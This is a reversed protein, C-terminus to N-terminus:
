AGGGAPVIAFGDPGLALREDAAVQLVNVSLGNGLAVTEVRGPDRNFENLADDFLVVRYRGDAGPTLGLAHLDIAVRNRQTPTGEGQEWRPVVGFPVVKFQPLYYQAFRWGTSLLATEQPAFRTAVALRPVYYADQIRLTDATLLKLREDALPFTPLLLFIAAGIAVALATAWRATRAPALAAAHALLLLLAPLFVLVLGQQGMHILTYYILVPVIWLVMVATRPSRAAGRLRLGAVVLFPALLLAGGFGYLTYMILKRLNRMLGFWGGNAFVSTTSAFAADFARLAKFYATWGGNLEILPVFWLLDIAALVALGLLRRRWDLYWGAYLALPALFVQTQPRLGGAIGLWLAAPVTFAAAGLRIEWLLWVAGIVMLADLCHPLAIAGYFWFLPSAALLLAAIVGTTRDFMRRGLLLLMAVALGGSVASIAVLARQPDGLAANVVRGLLVYLPYGPMHPQSARVDFRSLSLAFNVSDWHYLIAGSFPLRSAIVLAALAAALWLDRPESRAPAPDNV